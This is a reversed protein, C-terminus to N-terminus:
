YAKEVAQTFTAVAKRRPARRALPSRPAAGFQDIAIALAKSPDPSEKVGKALQLSFALKLYHGGDLNINIPDVPLVTGAEPKKPAKSGSPRLLFFWAGGGIALVLVLAILPKLKSRKKKTEPAEDAARQAGAGSSRISSVVREETQNM